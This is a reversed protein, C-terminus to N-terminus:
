QLATHPALTLDTSIFYAPRKDRYHRKTALARIDFPVSNLRGEIFRTLWTRKSGDAARIDVHVYRRHRQALFRQDLRQGSLLRNARIGCTAHWGQRRIYKLLRASAYWADAQVYVAV